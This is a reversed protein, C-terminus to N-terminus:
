DRTRLALRIAKKFLNRVVSEEECSFLDKRGIRNHHLPSAEGILTKSLIKECDLVREPPTNDPLRAVAFYRWSHKIKGDKSEICQGLRRVATNARNRNVGIGGFRYHSEKYDSQMIYIGKTVLRLESVQDIKSKSLAMLQIKSRPM